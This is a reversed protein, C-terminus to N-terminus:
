DSTPSGSDTRLWYLFPALLLCMSHSITASLPQYNFVLQYPFNSTWWIKLLKSLNFLGTRHVTFPSTFVCFSYWQYLLASPLCFQALASPVNWVNAETYFLYLGRMTVDYCQRSRWFFTAQFLGVSVCPLYPSDAYTTNRRYRRSFKLPLLFSLLKKRRAVTADSMEKKRIASCCSAHRWRAVHTCAWRPGINHCTKWLWYGISVLEISCLGEQSVLLWEAV